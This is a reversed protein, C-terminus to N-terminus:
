MDDELELVMGKWTNNIKTNNGKIEEYIRHNNEAKRWRM